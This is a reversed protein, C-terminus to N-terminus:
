VIKPICIFACYFSPPFIPHKQKKRHLYQYLLLLCNIWNCIYIYSLRYGILISLVFRFLMLNLTGLSQVVLETYLKTQMNKSIVYKTSRSARHGFQETNSINYLLHLLLHHHHTSMYLWLLVLMVLSIKPCFFFLYFTIAMHCIFM